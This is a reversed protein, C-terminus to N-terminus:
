GCLRRIRSRRRKDVAIPSRGIARVLYTLGPCPAAQIRRGV